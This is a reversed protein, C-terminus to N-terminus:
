SMKKPLIIIFSSGENVKSEVFIKGNHLEVILKTITLGLGSGEKERKNKVQGFRDFISDLYKEEIGIGTDIVCIAVEHEYEEILKIIVM